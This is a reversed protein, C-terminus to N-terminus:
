ETAYTQYLYQHDYICNWGGDAGATVCIYTTGKDSVESSVACNGSQSVYGTKAAQITGGFELDEIRRLFLNSLDIGSPNETTSSTTYQHASLVKKLYDDDLATKMIVAM